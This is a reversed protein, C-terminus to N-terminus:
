TAVEIGDPAGVRALRRRILTSLVATVVGALVAALALGIWPAAEALPGAIADRGVTSRLYLFTGNLIAALAVGAPMWWLPRREFKQRGLFYGMVGGFSAHALSTLVIRIAGSGLDVGGSGVVFAVNLATAFGLGVATGYIVGDTPEDFERSGYVAWRVTLYKLGEQVIGVVLIAGALHVVPSALLWTDVAFAGDVVPIAIGTAVLFGLVFIGVVMSRPEPELRDRRYFFALWVLAPVIALLLGALTLGAGTLRTDITADVLYVAVVFAVLLVLSAIDAQWGGRRAHRARDLHRACFAYEGLSSVAPEDCIRCTGNV